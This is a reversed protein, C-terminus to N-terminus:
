HNTTRGKPQSSNSEATKRQKIDGIVDFFSAGDGHKNEFYSLDHGTIMNEIKQADNEAAVLDPLDTHTGFLGLSIQHAHRAEHVAISYHSSILGNTSRFAVGEPPLTVDVGVVSGWDNFVPSAKVASPLGTRPDIFIRGEGPLEEIVLETVLIEFGSNNVLGFLHNPLSNIAEVVAQKSFSAEGRVGLAVGLETVAQPEDGVREANAYSATLGLAVLFGLVLLLRLMVHKLM